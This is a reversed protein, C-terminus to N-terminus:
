QPTLMVRDAVYDFVVAGTWTSSGATTHYDVLVVSAECRWSMIRVTDNPTDPYHFRPTCSRLQFELPNVAKRWAILSAITSTNIGPGLYMRLSTVDSANLDSFYREVLQMTYAGPARLSVGQVWVEFDQTLHANGADSRSLSM